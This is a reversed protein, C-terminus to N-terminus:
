IINRQWKIYDGQTCIRKYEKDTLKYIRKSIINRNLHMMDGYVVYRRLWVVKGTNMRRPLWAFVSAEFTVLVGIRKDTTHLATSLSKHLNGFLPVDIM